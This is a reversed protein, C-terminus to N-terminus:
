GRYDFPLEDAVEGLRPAEADRPSPTLEVAPWDIGLDPDDYAIGRELAPDYYTSCKYIVDAEDSTVCFGHAFGVPVYLQHHNEDSLVHGEWQGYTPSGRRIDVIVDLIEGGGCRVLKAQGPPLQFHMGRVVGRRSRSHNDQVFTDAIGLAAYADARYTEQFFGREDGHVTPRLLFTGPLRTDLQEM